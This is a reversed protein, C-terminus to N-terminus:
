EKESKLKEIFQERREDAIKYEEKMHADREASPVPKRMRDEIQKNTTVFEANPLAKVTGKPLYSPQVLSYGIGVAVSLILAQVLKKKKWGVFLISAIILPLLINLLVIM